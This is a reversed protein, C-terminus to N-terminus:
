AGVKPILCYVQGSSGLFLIYHDLPNGYKSQLKARPVDVRTGDPIVGRGNIITTIISGDPNDGALEVDFADAEGCCSLYPNGPQMVSRFWERIEAPQGEWQGDDRAHAATVAWLVAALALLALFAGITAVTIQRALGMAPLIAPHAVRAVCM